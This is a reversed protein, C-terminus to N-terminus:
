RYLLDRAPKLRELGPHNEDIMINDFCYGQQCHNATNISPVPQPIEISAKIAYDVLKLNFFPSAM